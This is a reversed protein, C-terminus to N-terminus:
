SEQQLHSGARRFLLMDLKPPINKSHSETDRDDRSSATLFNHFVDIFKAKASKHLPKLVGDRFRQIQM